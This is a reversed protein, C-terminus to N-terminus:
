WVTGVHREPRFLISVIVGPVKEEFNRRTGINGASAVVIPDFALVAKPTIGLSDLVVSARHAAIEDLFTNDDAVSPRARHYEDFRVARHGLFLQFLIDDSITLSVDNDDDFINIEFKHMKPIAFFARAAKELKLWAKEKIRTIEFLDIKVRKRLRM